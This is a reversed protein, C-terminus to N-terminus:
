KRGSFSGDLRAAEAALALLWFALDAAPGLEVAASAAPWVLVLAPPLLPPLPPSM